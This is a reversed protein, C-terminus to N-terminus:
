VKINAASNKHKMPSLSPSSNQLLEELDESEPLVLFITSPLSWVKQLILEYFILEAAQM